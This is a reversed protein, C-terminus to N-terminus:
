RVRLRGVQVSVQAVESRLHRIESHLEEVLVMLGKNLNYNVPDKKADLYRTINEKFFKAASDITM